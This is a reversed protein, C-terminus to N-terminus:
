FLLRARALIVTNERWKNEEVFCVLLMEESFLSITKIQVKTTQCYPQLLIYSIIALSKTNNM